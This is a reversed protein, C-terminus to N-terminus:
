RASLSARSPPPVARSTSLSMFISGGVASHRGATDAAATTALRSAALVWARGSGFRFRLHLSRVRGRGSTREEREGGPVVVCMGIERPCAAPDAAAAAAASGAGRGM